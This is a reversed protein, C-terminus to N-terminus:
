SPTILERRQPRAPPQACYDASMPQRPEGCLPDALMPPMGETRAVLTDDMWACEEFCQALPAGEDAYTKNGIFDSPMTFAFGLCGGAPCDVLSLEGLTDTTTGSAYTAWDQCVVELPKKGTADTENM